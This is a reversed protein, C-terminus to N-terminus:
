ASQKRDSSGFGVRRHKNTILPGGWRDLGHPASLRAAKLSASSSTLHMGLWVRLPRVRCRGVHFPLTLTGHLQMVSM